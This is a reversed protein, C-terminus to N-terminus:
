VPIILKGDLLASAVLAAAAGAGKLAMLDEKGRVGGGAVFEVDPHRGALGALLAETGTGSSVGVRALDLLIIRRVGCKVVADAVAEPSAGFEPNGLLRGGMMDLSFAVRQPGLVAVAARIEDPGGVTELGIVVVAVGAAALRAANACTRVGADVWLRFGGAHLDAFLTWAPEAGAIADLDALYLETLGFHRRFAEALDRPDNSPTLPTVLPRYEARRGAVARVAVGSMVDIVPIIHM